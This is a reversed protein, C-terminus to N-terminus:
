CNESLRPEFKDTIVESKQGLTKDCPYHDYEESSVSTQIYGKLHIEWSNVCYGAIIQATHLIQARDIKKISIPFIMAKRALKDKRVSVAKKPTATLIERYMCM